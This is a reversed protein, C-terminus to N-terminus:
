FFLQLKAAHFPEIGYTVGVLPCKGQVTLRKCFDTGYTTGKIPLQKTRDAKKRKGSIYEPLVNNNEM